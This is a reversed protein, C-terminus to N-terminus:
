TICGDGVPDIDRAMVIPITRTMDQAARTGLPGGTVIIDVGLRFPRAANEGSGISMARAGGTSLSSTRARSIGWSASVKCSDRAAPPVPAPYSASIRSGPSQGHCSRKPPSRCRSSLSPSPRPVRRHQAVHHGGETPRRCAWSSQSCQRYAREHGEGQQAPCKRAKRRWYQPPLRVDPTLRTRKRVDGARGPQAVTRQSLVGWHISEWSCSGESRIQQAGSNVLHGRFRSGFQYRAM